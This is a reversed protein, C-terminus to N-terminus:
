AMRHSQLADLDDKYAAARQLFWTAGSTSVARTAADLDRRWCYHLQMARSWSLFHAQSVEVWDDLEDASNGIDDTVVQAELQETPEDFLSPTLDSRRKM